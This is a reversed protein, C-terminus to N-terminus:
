DDHHKRREDAFLRRSDTLPAREAMCQSTPSRRWGAAWTSKPARISAQWTGAPGWPPRACTQASPSGRGHAAPSTRTSNMTTVAPTCRRRRTGARRLCPGRDGSGEDPDHALALFINRVGAATQSNPSLRDANGHDPPPLIGFGATEAQRMTGLALGSAGESDLSALMVMGFPALSDTTGATASWLKQWETVLPQSQCSYGVSASNIM